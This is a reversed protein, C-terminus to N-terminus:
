GSMRRRRVRGCLCCRVLSITVLTSAFAAITVFFLYHKGLTLILAADWGHWSSAGGHAMLPTTVVGRLMHPALRGNEDGLVHVKDPARGSVLARAYSMWVNSFFMCGASFM